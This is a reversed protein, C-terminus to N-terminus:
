SGTRMSPALIKRKMADDMRIERLPWRGFAFLM